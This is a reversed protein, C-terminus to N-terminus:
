FNIRQVRHNETDVVHVRGRSDVALAWPEHLQGPAGGQSGWCGLSEGKMTFKQVRNNGREAVYLVGNKGFALDSPYSLEGPHRGPRGWCRVLQGDKTFVQIRHNTCDVVYLNNDPGFALARIRGFQGPETGLSGWCKIFKGYKDLKTIRNNETFEALYYNGDEDPVCDCIYGFQGLGTGAEGGLVRLQKGEPSYIRVCHYHSDSVLLNGNRDMSLGSPRGNRFDPTTWCLNLFNGDRDFVQIRATFDVIYLHDKADIAVARPRAFDGPQSGKQGWVIEPKSHATECGAPVFASLALATCWFGRRIVPGHNVANAM